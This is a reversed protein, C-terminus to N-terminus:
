CVITKTNATTVCGPVNTKKINQIQTYIIEVNQLSKIKNTYKKCLLAGTKIIYSLEKKDKIDSPIECVVHCSSVEKAHFWLDDKSSKDIIGFHEQQNQGIHFVLERELPQIWISETKM